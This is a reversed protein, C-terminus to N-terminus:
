VIRKPERTFRFALRFFEIPLDQAEDILMADFLPPVDSGASIDLLERCVGAFAEDRGYTSLAFAFDRYTAGLARAVMKYVGDRDNAGWAHLLQFKEFDPKDNSHEFTFRTVLDEFQQYLSRTQFTVAIRWDPHQAHLYAAKLALVITKGSGALGRIRQPGEPTEIAAQKQWRDLNAIGREIQKLVGGRSNARTVSSRRKTPKITTVRQLAAQLARAVGEDVPPFSSVLAPVDTIGCYYGGDQAEPAVIQDAFVTVTEIVFALRRGRRLTDHRGLHSELVSYLRDQEAVVEQWEAQDSPQFESIQFAVLGHDPSVLLADVYVREDATALVPYGLYVTGQSTTSKLTEALQKALARHRPEGHM